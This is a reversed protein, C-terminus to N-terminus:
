FIVFLTKTNNWENWFSLAVEICKKEAEVDGNRKMKRKKERASFM